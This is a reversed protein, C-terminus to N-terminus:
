GCGPLFVDASPPEPERMRTPDIYVVDRHVQSVVEVLSPIGNTGRGTLRWVRGDTAELQRSPACFTVDAAGTFVRIRGAATVVLVAHEDNFDAQGFSTVPGLAVWPDNLESAPGQLVWLSAAVVVVGAVLSAVIWQMGLPARLIIKRARHAAREPLFGGPGFEPPDDPRKPDDNVAVRYRFPTAGKAMCLRRTTVPAIIRSDKLRALQRTVDKKVTALHVRM